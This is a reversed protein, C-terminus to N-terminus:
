QTPAPRSNHSSHGHFSHCSIRPLHELEPPSFPGQSAPAVSPSVEATEGKGLHKRGDQRGENPNCSRAVADDHCGQAQGFPWYTTIRKALPVVGKGVGISLLDNNGTQGCMRTWWMTYPCDWLTPFADIIWTDMCEALRHSLCWATSKFPNVSEARMISWSNVEVRAGTKCILFFLCLSSFYNIWLCM